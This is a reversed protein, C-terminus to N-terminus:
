HFVILTKTEIPTFYVDHLALPLIYDTFIEYSLEMLSKKKGKRDFEKSGNM